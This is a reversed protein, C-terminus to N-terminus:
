NDSNVIRLRGTADGCRAERTGHGQREGQHNGCPASWDPLAGCRDALPHALPSPDVHTHTVIIHSIRQGPGLAALIAELHQDISPGPDIVAIGTTGLLYTNTGRYTMPSPNPAVIRRLGPELTEAVGIPPDFDDPPQM